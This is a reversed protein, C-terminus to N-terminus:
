LNEGIQKLYDRLGKYLEAAYEFQSESYETGLDPTIGVIELIMSKEVYSYTFYAKLDLVWRANEFGFQNSQFYQNSWAKALM